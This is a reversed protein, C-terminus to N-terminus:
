NVQNRRVTLRYGDAAELVLWEGGMREDVVKWIRGLYTVKDMTAEM